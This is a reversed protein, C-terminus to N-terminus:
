SERERERERLIFTTVYLLTCLCIRMDTASVPFQGTLADAGVSFVLQLSPYSTM